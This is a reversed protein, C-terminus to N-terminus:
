HLTKPLGTDGDCGEQFTTYQVGDIARLVVEDHLFYEFIHIVISVIVM